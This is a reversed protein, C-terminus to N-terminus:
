FGYSRPSRGGFFLVFELRVGGDRIYPLATRTGPDFFREEASLRFCAARALRPLAVPAEIAVGVATEDLKSDDDFLVRGTAALTWGAGLTQALTGAAMFGHHDSELRDRAIGRLRPLEDDLEVRPATPV